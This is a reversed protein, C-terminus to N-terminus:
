ALCLGGPPTQGHGQGRLCDLVPKRFDVLASAKTRCKFFSPWYRIKCKLFFLDPTSIIFLSWQNVKITYWYLLVSVSDHGSEWFTWARIWSGHSHWNCPLLSNLNSMLQSSIYNIRFYGLSVYIMVLARILLLLCSLSLVLSIAVYSLSLRVDNAMLWLIRPCSRSASLPWFGLEEKCDQQCRSKLSRM